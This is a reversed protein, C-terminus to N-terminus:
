KITNYNDLEYWYCPLDSHGYINKQQMGLKQLIRNSGDNDIHAMAYLTPIKMENFAYDVWAQAAESAYGKGWFEERLRYGIDYFNVHGNEEETVLKLGIWGITEGTDKLVAVFRGIGNQRYQKQISDIYAHCQDISTLPNNGLYLHVNPNSDLAFMAEADTHEFPRLLLRETELRLNVITNMHELYGRYLRCGKKLIPRLTLTPL